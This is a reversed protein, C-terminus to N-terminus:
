QCGERYPSASPTNKVQRHHNGLSPRSRRSHDRLLTLVILGDATVNLTVTSRGGVNSAWVGSAFTMHRPTLPRGAQGSSTVHRHQRIDSHSRERHQVDPGSFAVAATKLSAITDFAVHDYDADHVAMTGATGILGTALRPSSRQRLDDKVGDTPLTLTFTASTQGAPIIVFAPVTLETTRELEAPRGSRGRINWQRSGHRFQDPDSRGLTATPLTLTLTTM